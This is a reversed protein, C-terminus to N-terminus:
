DKLWNKMEQKAKYKEIQPLLRKEYFNKLPLKFYEDKKEKYWTRISDFHGIFRNWREKRLHKRLEKDCLIQPARTCYIQEYSPLFKDYFKKLTKNKIINGFYIINRYDITQFFNEEIGTEPNRYFVRFTEKAKIKDNFKLFLVCDYYKFGYLNESHVLLSFEMTNKSVLNNEVGKFIFSYIYVYSYINGTTFLGEPLDRFYVRYGGCGCVFKQGNEFELLLRELEEDRYIHYSPRIQSYTVHGSGDSAKMKSNCFWDFLSAKENM